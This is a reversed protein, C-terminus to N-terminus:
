SCRTPTPDNMATIRRLTPRTTDDRLVVESVVQTHRRAQALFPGPNGLACCAMAKRHKLWSLPQESTAGAHSVTLSAWEHSASLVPTGPLCQGAIDARLSEATAADVSETHTIIV